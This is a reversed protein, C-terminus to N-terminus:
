GNVLNLLPTIEFNIVYFSNISVQVYNAGHKIKQYLPCTEIMTRLFPIIKNLEYFNSEFSFVLEGTIIISFKQFNM